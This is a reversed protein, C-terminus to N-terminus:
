LYVRASVNNRRRVCLIFENFSPSSDLQICIYVLLINYYTYILLFLCCVKQTYYSRNTTLQANTLHIAAKDPM